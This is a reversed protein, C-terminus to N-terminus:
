LILYKIWVISDFKLIFSNLWVNSEFKQDLSIIWVKSEFKKMFSDFWVKLKLYQISSKIWIILDCKQNLRKMWVKVYFHEFRVELKDKSVDILLDFSIIEGTNSFFWVGVNNLLEINPNLIQIWYGLKVNWVIMQIRVGDKRNSSEIQHSSIFTQNSLQIRHSLKTCCNPPEM